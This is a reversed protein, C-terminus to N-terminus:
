RWWFSECNHQRKGSEPVGSLFFKRGTKHEVAKGILGLEPVTCNKNLETANTLLKPYLYESAVDGWKKPNFEKFDFLIEDLIKIDSHKLAMRLLQQARDKEEPIEEQEDTNDAFNGIENALAQVIDTDLLHVLNKENETLGIVRKTRGRPKDQANEVPLINEWLEPYEQRTATKVHQIAGDSFATGGTSELSIGNDSNKTVHLNYYTIEGKDLCPLHSIIELDAAKIKSLLNLEQLCKEKTFKSVHQWTPKILRLENPQDGNETTMCLNQWQGDYVECLVPINRAVLEDRCNNILFRLEKNNLHKGKMAYGLPLSYPIFEEHHCNHDSLMFVLVEQAEQRLTNHVTEFLPKGEFAITQCQTQIEATDLCQPSRVDCVSYPSIIEGEKLVGEIARFSPIECVFTCHTHTYEKIM